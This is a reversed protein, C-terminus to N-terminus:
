YEIVKDVVFRRMAEGDVLKYQIQRTGGTPRANVDNERYIPFRQVLSTEVIAFEDHGMYGQSLKDNEAIPPFYVQSMSKGNNVSYGIVEGYTGSGKSHIYVLVEPYGDSNLDEIEANTVTGDITHTVADNVISLGLPVITLLTSMGEERTSIDFGIGQLNLAKNFITKDIQDQDLAGEIRTYDGELSAGGSCYYYLMGSDEPNETAININDDNFTFLVTKGDIVTHYTKEDLRYATADFTCTPKKRDARSRVSISIANDMGKEKVTVAIWDYGEQRKEYDASVYNVTFDAPAAAPKESFLIEQAQNTKKSAGSCGALVMGSLTILLIIPPRLM